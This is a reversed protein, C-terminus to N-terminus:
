REHRLGDLSPYGSRTLAGVPSRRVHRLYFDEEQSVRSPKKDSSISASRIPESACISHVANAIATNSVTTYSITRSSNTSSVFIRAIKHVNATIAQPTGLRARKRRVYGKLSTQSRYLLQTAM